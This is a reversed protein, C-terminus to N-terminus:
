KKRFLYKAEIFDIFENLLYRPFDWAIICRYILSIKEDTLM